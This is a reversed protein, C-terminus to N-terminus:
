NRELSAIVVDGGTAYLGLQAREGATREVGHHDAGHDSALNHFPRLSDTPCIACQGLYRRRGSCKARQAM